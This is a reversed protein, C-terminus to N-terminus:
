RVEIPGLAPIDRREQQHNFTIDMFGNLVGLNIKADAAVKKM